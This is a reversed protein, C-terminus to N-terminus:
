DVVDRSKHESRKAKKPARRAPQAVTEPRLPPPSRCPPEPVVITPPKWQLVVQLTMLWLHPQLRRCRKVHLVLHDLDKYVPLIEDDTWCRSLCQTLHETLQQGWLTSEDDSVSVVLENWVEVDQDDADQKEDKDQEHKHEHGPTDSRRAPKLNLKVHVYRPLAIAAIANGLCKGARNLSAEQQATTEEVVTRWEQLYGKINTPAGHAFGVHAGGAFFFHETAADYKLAICAGHQGLTRVFVVGCEVDVHEVQYATSISLTARATPDSEIQIRQGLWQKQLHTLVRKSPTDTDRRAEWQFCESWYERTTAVRKTDVAMNKKQNNNNRLLSHSASLHNVM